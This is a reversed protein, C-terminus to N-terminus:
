RTLFCLQTFLTLVPTNTVEEETAGRWIVLAQHCHGLADGSQQERELPLVNVDGDERRRESVEQVGRDRVHHTELGFLARVPGFQLQGLLYRFYRLRMEDATTLNGM